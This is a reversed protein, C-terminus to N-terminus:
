DIKNLTPDLVYLVGNDNLKGVCEIKFQKDGNLELKDIDVFKDYDLDMDLIKVKNGNSIYVKAGDENSSVYLLRFTLDDYAEDLKFKYYKSASNVGTIKIASQYKSEQGDIEFTLNREGMIKSGHNGYEDVAVDILRVNKINDDVEEVEKRDNLGGNSADDVRNNTVDNTRDNTRDNTNPINNEIKSDNYEGKFVSVIVPFKKIVVIIIIIFIIVTLCGSKEKKESM